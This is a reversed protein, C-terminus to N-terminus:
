YEPSALDSLPNAFKIHADEDRDREYRIAGLTMTGIESGLEGVVGRNGRVVGAKTPVSRVMGISDVAAESGPACCNCPLVDDLPRQQGGGTVDIDQSQKVLTNPYEQPSIAIYYWSYYAEELATYQISHRTHGGCLVVIIVHVFIVRLDSVNSGRCGSTYTKSKRQLQVRRSAIKPSGGGSESDMWLQALIAEPVPDPYRLLQFAGPLEVLPNDSIKPKQPRFISIEQAQM